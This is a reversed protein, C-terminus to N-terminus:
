KINLYFFFIFLSNSIIYLFLKNIKFRNKIKKKIMKGIKKGKKNEKLNEWFMVKIFQSFLFNPGSKMFSVPPLKSFSAATDTEQSQIQNMEKERGCPASLFSANGMEDQEYVLRVGCKKVVEGPVKSTAFAVKLHDRLDVGSILRYGFWIHDAKSFHMSTTNDLSFGGSENVSFYASRGIKGMSFKPHFVACAALGISNTNYCGPPLEVTISDGESQHTFWEPISSGPVVADYRSEGYQILFFNSPM